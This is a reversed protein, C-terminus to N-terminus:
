NVFYATPDSLPFIIQNFGTPIALGVAFEYIMDTSLATGGGGVLGSFSVAGPDTAMNGPSLGVLSSSVHMPDPLYNEIITAGTTTDFVVDVSSSTNAQGFSPVNIWSVRIVGAAQTITIDNSGGIQRNDLDTWFGAVAPLNSFTATSAAASSNTGGFSVIGNSSVSLQTFQQGAFNIPSPSCLPPALIPVVTSKDDQAALGTISGGDSFTVEALASLSHGIPQAPDVTVAQGAATAPVPLVLNLTVQSTFPVSFGFGNLYTLSAAGLDLNIIQGGPLTIGGGTAPLGQEPLTYGLDWPMGFNTSDLTVSATAGVCADHRLPAYVGSTKNNVSLTAGSQNVQWPIPSSFLNPGNYGRVWDWDADADNTTGSSGDGWMMTNRTSTTPATGSWVLIDDIFARMNLTGGDSEVRYTHFQTVDFNPDVVTYAITTNPGLIRIATQSFWIGYRGSLDEMLIIACATGTEFSLFRVRAEMMCDLAPDIVVPTVHPDSGAARNGAFFMGRGGAFGSSVQTHRQELLGNAVNMLPSPSGGTPPGNQSEWAIDVTEDHPLLGPTEFDFVWSRTQANLAVSLLLFVGLLGVLHRM